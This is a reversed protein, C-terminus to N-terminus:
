YPPFIIAANYSPRLIQLLSLPKKHTSIFPFFKKKTEGFIFPKTSISNCDGPPYSPHKPQLSHQRTAVSKKLPIGSLL